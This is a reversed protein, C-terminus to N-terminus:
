VLPKKLPLGERRPYQANLKGTKKVIVFFRKANEIPLLTELAEVIESALTKAIPQYKKWQDKIEPGQYAILKGGPKIFPLSYELMVPFPGVARTVAIDFRERYKQNQGLTEARGLLTKANPIGLTEIMSQVASLKKATSDALTFSCSPLAIALAIGPFGGGTGIDIVSSGAPIQDFPLVLLSDIIHKLLVGERDRIASLNLQSNWQLFCDSLKELQLIQQASLNSLNLSLLNM